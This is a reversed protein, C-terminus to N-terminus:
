PEQPTPPKPLGMRAFHVTRTLEPRKYIYWTTSLAGPEFDIPRMPYGTRRTWLSEMVLPCHTCYWHVGTKNWAWAHPRRTMGTTPYPPRGSEPDGNRLIGGSGCPEFRMVFRDEEEWVAVEGRRSSGSLHGRMGEVGLQLQEEPTMEHWRAYRPGWIRDFTGEISAAIAEEDWQEAVYTLLDQGWAVSVDHIMVFERRVEDVLRLADQDAHGRIAAEARLLPAEGVAFRQFTAVVLNPLPSAPTDGARAAIYRLIDEIWIWMVQYLGNYEEHMYRALELAQDYEGAGLAREVLTQTAIGLEPVPDQRIRRGLKPAYKLYSVRVIFRLM